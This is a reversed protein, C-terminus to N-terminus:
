QGAKSSAEEITILNNVIAYITLGSASKIGLKSSINKRHTIVTHTSLFLEDAIQKNTMGLSVLKVITQERPTLENEAQDKGDSHQEILALVKELLEEKPANEALCPLSFTRLDGSQDKVLVLTRELLSPHDMLLAESQQFLAKSIILFHVGAHQLYRKIAEPSDLEFAVRTRPIRGLLHAIGKRLLYAETAIIFSHHTM